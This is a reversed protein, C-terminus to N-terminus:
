KGPKVTVKKGSYDKLSFVYKRHKISHLIEILLIFTSM